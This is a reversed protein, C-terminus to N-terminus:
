DVFIQKVRSKFNKHTFENKITLRAQKQINQQQKPNNILSLLNKTLEEFNKFIFGDIKNNIVEKPGGANFCFVIIGAAMAELPTIGMHEVLEPNELENVGFGTFHWYIMSRKYLDLLQKYHINPLFIINKNNQTLKILFNFYEKDEKLLGGTLILKFKTLQNNNQQLKNFLKIMLDQRKAHLHKFFRGVSLIIKDKNLSNNGIDIFDQNIYPYLLQTNIDWSKFIKQVFQSHTIFKYNLTKIKNIVNMKYLEKNPVMAYIFNKKASSFFYSGDTVYIFIDFNQLILSNKIYNKTKFINPLFSLSDFKINLKNNIEKSIDRDWFINPQFGFEELTQLISLTYREGGGLINLYPNYLAARKM